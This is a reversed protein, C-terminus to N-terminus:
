TYTQQPFFFLSEEYVYLLDAGVIFFTDTLYLMIADASPQM